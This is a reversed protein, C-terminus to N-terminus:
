SDEKIIAKINKSLVDDCDAHDLSTLFTERSAEFNNLLQDGMNALCNLLKLLEEVNGYEVAWGLNFDRSYDALITGESVICPTGAIVSDFFKGSASNRNHEFAPDYMVYSVDSEAIIQVGAQYDLKGLYRLQETKILKFKESLNGFGALTLTIRSDHELCKLLEILGRDSQLVGFYAINLKDSNRRKLPRLNTNFSNSVVIQNDIGSLHRSKSAVVSLHCMRFIVKEIQNGVFNFLQNHFRSSIPDFQDYILKFNKIRKLIVSMLATDADCAYVLNYSGTLINKAIWLQWISQGAFNRIGAGYNAPMTFSIRNFSEHSMDAKKDSRQWNLLTVEFGLSELSKIAQETRPEPDVDTSRIVAARM